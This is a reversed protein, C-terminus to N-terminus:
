FVLNFFTLKNLYSLLFTVKYCILVQMDIM